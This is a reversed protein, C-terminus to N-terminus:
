RGASATPAACCPAHSESRHQAALAITPAPVERRLPAHTQLNCRGHGADAYGNMLSDYLDTVVMRSSIRRDIHDDQVRQFNEIRGRGQKGWTGNIHLYGLCM